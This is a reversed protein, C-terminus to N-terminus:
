KFEVINYETSNKEPLIVICEGAKLGSTIETKMANRRKVEVKTKMAHDFKQQYVYLYSNGNKDSIISESPVLLVSNNKEQLPIYIEISQGRKLELSTEDVPILKAKFQGNEVITSVSEIFLPADQGSIQSAIHSQPKIKDLYYESFYANFYYSTLNDIVAIKEGPKIQQGLEIDLVSLTVDIPATIVLQELGSEIMKMMRGLLQISEEIHKFQAPISQKNADNHQNFIESKIKWHQFLDLQYEVESKAILSNKDLTQHRALNKSIIELQHQAEQLNVKTDRNDQELRMKMNRLNNTQETIDAMKSTTELMFDYNSLRVIVDGKVVREFAPKVIEIVKGGRESSVIISEKPVTIARTILTEQYAEPQVTHFTVDERSILLTSQLTSLRIIYFVCAILILLTCFVILKANINTPKKKEIQIDM